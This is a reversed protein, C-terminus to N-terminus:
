DSFVGRQLATAEVSERLASNAARPTSQDAARDLLQMNPKPAISTAPAERHEADAGCLPGAARAAPDITV